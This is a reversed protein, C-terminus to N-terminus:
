TTELATSLATGSQLLDAKTLAAVQNALTTIHTILGKESPVEYGQMMKTLNTLAVSALASAREYSKVFLKTADPVKQPYAGALVADQCLQSPLMELMTTEANVYHKVVQQAGSLRAWHLRLLATSFKTFAPMAAGDFTISLDDGM